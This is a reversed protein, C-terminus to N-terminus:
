PRKEGNARQRGETERRGRTRSKSLQGAEPAEAMGGDGSPTPYCCCCISLSLVIVLTSTMDFSRLSCNSRAAPSVSADESAEFALEFMESIARNHINTGPKLASNLTAPSSSLGLGFLGKCVCHSKEAIILKNILLPTM